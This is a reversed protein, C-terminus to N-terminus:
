AACSRSTPASSGAGRVAEGLASAVERRLAFLMAGSAGKDLRHVPYVRRRLQERLM